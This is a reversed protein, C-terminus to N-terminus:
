CLLYVPLEECKVQWTSLPAAGSGPNSQFVQDHNRQLHQQSPYRPPPPYGGGDGGAGGNSGGRWEFLSRFNRGKERGRGNSQRTPDVLNTNTNGDVGRWGFFFRGLLGARGNCVTVFSSILLLGLTVRLAASSGRTSHQLRWQPIM